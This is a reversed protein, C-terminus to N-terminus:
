GRSSTASGGGTSSTWGCGSCIPSSASACDLLFHEAVWTGVYDDGFSAIGGVLTLGAFLGGCFILAHLDHPVIVRDGLLKYTYITATDIAPVLVVLALAAVLQRRYPRVYPWFRRALARVPVPPAAVEPM